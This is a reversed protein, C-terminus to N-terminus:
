TAHDVVNNIFPNYKVNESAYTNIRKNAFWKYNPIRTDTWIIKDTVIPMLNPANARNFECDTKFEYDTFVNTYGKDMGSKTPSRGQQLYEKAVNISMNSVDERAREKDPGWKAPNIYKNRAYRERQTIDPTYDKYNIVYSNSTDVYGAIGHLEKNLINRQTMNPVDSFDEAKQKIMNGSISSGQRDYEDQVSRTTLYPVDSYDVAKQKIMNGSISSGQRDYEDQVSRTTLYPVDSYDVAKQKIMNGSISSGQRDYEDQVSRTTLYPVDSYDVAKQKIMNGSISSGQRDYEDQVSRTTLYPIDNYDVAKQKTMNGTMSSGARDYENLVSRQTEKPVWCELCEPKNGLLEVLHVNSPDAQRFSQKFPIRYKGRLKNPTEKTTIHKASGYITRQKVGRNVTAMNNPDYNDRARMKKTDSALGKILDGNQNVKYTQPKKKIVKGITPGRQGHIGDVVRSGYTIKYHDPTRLENVTKPLTRYPDHFGFTANETYGLGLGPTVKIEQFPKENRREKSPMYRTEYFDTYVPTGFTNAMGILPSFMPEVEEKHRFDPRNVDGTFLENVRQHMEGMKQNRIKSGGGRGFQPQMPQMRNTNSMVTANIINEPIDGTKPFLKERSENMLERVIGDRMSPANVDTGVGYDCKEPIRTNNNLLLPEFQKEFSNQEDQEFGEPKSLNYYPPIIGTKNPKMSKKTMNDVRRNTDNNVLHVNNNDYLTTKKNKEYEKNKKRVHRSKRTPKNNNLYKGAAVLGVLGAVTIFEM